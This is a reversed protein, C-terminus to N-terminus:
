RCWLHEEFAHRTNSEDKTLLRIREQYPLRLLPTFGVRAMRVLKMAAKKAAIDNRHEANADTTQLPTGSIRGHCTPPLCNM